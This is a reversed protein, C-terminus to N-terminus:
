LILDPFSRQVGTALWLLHYWHPIQLLKTHDCTLRTKSLTQNQHRHACRLPLNEQMLGMSIFPTQGKSHCNEVIGWQGSTATILNCKFHLSGPGSSTWQVSNTKVETPGFRQAVPMIEFPKSPYPTFLLNYHFNEQPTSGKLELRRWLVVDLRQQEAAFSLQPSWKSGWGKAHM